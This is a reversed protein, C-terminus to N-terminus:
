VVGRELQLVLEVGRDGVQRFWRSNKAEQGAQEFDENEVAAIMKKFKRLVPAGMNFLMNILAEQREENLNDFNKFISKAEPVFARIDSELLFEAELESIGEAIDRFDIFDFFEDPFGNDQFNHGYGITMKGAPCPYPMHRTNIIHSGEHRKLQKVLRELNM